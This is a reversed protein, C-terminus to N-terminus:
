GKLKAVEAKLTDVEAKLDAPLNDANFVTLDDDIKIGEQPINNALLRENPPVEDTALYTSLFDREKDSPKFNNAVKAAITLTPAPIIAIRALGSRIAPIPINIAAPICPNPLDSFSTNFSNSFIPPYELSFLSKSM